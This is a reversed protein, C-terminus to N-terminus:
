TKGYYASYYYGYGYGRGQPNACNMVAGGLAVQMSELRRRALVAASRSTQGERVVLVTLDARRAVLPSESVQNVPASDILVFDYNARAWVLAEEFRTTGALEAAGSSGEGAALVDVGPVKSQQVVSALTAKGQLYQELGAGAAAGILKRQSPRRLDADFVLVRRGEMALVKALNATVTSKGEGQLASLICVVRGGQIKELRTVLEARLGRFSEFEPLTAHEDLLVPSDGLATSLRPIMAVVELGVFAEVERPSQIRDDLQEVVFMAGVGLLLGVVAALALNTLIKPKFPALPLTAHDVVRVSGLASGSTATTEGYKKLYSTYLEKASLLEGDLRKFQNLNRAAATMGADTSEIEAKLAKEEGEVAALDTELSKLTGRIAERIKEEVLLLQQRLELIAPHREKYLKEAKALETATRTRQDALPELTRTSHFAPNFLGSVGEVGYSSLADLESRVKIRRLRIETFRTDFRRRAEVLSKYHEDFDIFGTQTQFAQLAKDADDVRARISPLAEKSLVEAAGSKLERLRRNADDLYLSVLTNVVQTAAAPDEDVFGIKLIFSTRVKEIDLQEGFAKLPDKKDDWKRRVAEPLAKFVTELLTPSTLIQEQTRYYNEWMMRSAMLAPDAADGGVLPTEPRIELSAQPRYLRKTTFTYIGVAVLTALWVLALLRWRRRLIILVQALSAGDPAVIAPSAPDM